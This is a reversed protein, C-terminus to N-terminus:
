LTSCILENVDGERHPLINYIDDTGKRIAWSCGYERSHVEGSFHSKPSIALNPQFGFITTDVIASFVLGVQFKITTGKLRKLIRLWLRARSRFNVMLVVRAFRKITRLM